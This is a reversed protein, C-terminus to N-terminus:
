STRYVWIPLKDEPHSHKILPLQPLPFIYSVVTTQGTLKKQFIPGLKDNAKPTLFLLITCHPPFNIRTFDAYRVQLRSRNSNIFFLIKCWLFHLPSLEYAIIQDAKSYKAAAISLRGDGAGLDFVIGGPEIQALEILRKLDQQKTWLPPAYFWSTYAIPLLFLCVFVLLPLSM